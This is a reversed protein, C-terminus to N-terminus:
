MAFKILLEELNERTIVIIESKITYNLHMKITKIQVIKNKKCIHCVKQKEDSENEENTLLLMKKEEYSIIKM